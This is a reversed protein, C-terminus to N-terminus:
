VWGRRKADEIAVAAAEDGLSPDDPPPGDAWRTPAFERMAEGSSGEPFQLNWRHGAPHIVAVSRHGVVYIRYGADQSAPSGANDPAGAAAGLREEADDTM